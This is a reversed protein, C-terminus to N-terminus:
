RAPRGEIAIGAYFDSFDRRVCERVMELSTARHFTVQKEEGATTRYTVRYDMM